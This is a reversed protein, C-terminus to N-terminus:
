LKHDMHITTEQGNISETQEAHAKSAHAKIKCTGEAKLTAINSRVTGHICLENVPYQDQVSGIAM